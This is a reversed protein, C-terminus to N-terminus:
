RIAGHCLPKEESETREGGRRRQKKETGTVTVGPLLSLNLMLRVTTVRLVAVSIGIVHYVAVGVGLRCIIVAVGPFLRM